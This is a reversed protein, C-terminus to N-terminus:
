LRRLRYPYIGDKFYDSSEDPNEATLFNYDSMGQSRINNDKIPNQCIYRKKEFCFYDNWGLRIGNWKLEVCHERQYANSPEGFLWGNEVSDGVKISTSHWYFIGNPYRIGALWYGSWIDAPIQNNEELFTQIADREENSMVSVLELGAGICAKAADTWNLAETSLLYPSNLTPVFDSTCLHCLISLLVFFNTSSFFMKNFSQQFLATNQAHM